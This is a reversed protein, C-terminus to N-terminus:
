ATPRHSRECTGPVWCRTGPVRYQILASPRIGLGAVPFRAWPNRMRYGGDLRGDDWEYGGRAFPTPDWLREPIRPIKPLSRKTLSTDYLSDERPPTGPNRLSPSVPAASAPTPVDDLLSPISVPVRLIVALGTPGIPDQLGLPPIRFRLFLLNQPGIRLPDAQPSPRPQIPDGNPRDPLRREDEPLRSGPAPRPSPRAPLKPPRFSRFTQVDACGAPRPRRRLLGFRLWRDSAQLRDPSRPPRHKRRGGASGGSRPCAM